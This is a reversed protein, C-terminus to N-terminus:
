QEDERILESIAVALYLVTLAGGAITLPSTIAVGLLQFLLLAATVELSSGSVFLTVFAWIIGGLGWAVHTDLDMVDEFVYAPTGALSLGAVSIGILAILSGISSLEIM